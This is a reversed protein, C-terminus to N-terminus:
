NARGKVSQRCLDFRNRTSRIGIGQHGGPRKVLDSGNEVRGALVVEASEDPTAAAMLTISSTQIRHDDQGGGIQRADNIELRLIQSHRDFGTDQHGVEFGAQGPM